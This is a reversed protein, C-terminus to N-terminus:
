AAKAKEMAGFAQELDAILDEPEELGIHLRLMVTDNPWQTVTRTAAPKYAIILSEYGGWSYGMGFHHLANMFAALKDRSIDKLVLAFLGSAGHMDRKWMAHGPDNSLAPYCVREVEKRGGLWQAVQMANTQHQAVRVGITRLGRLALYANDGSVSEGCNKYYRKLAAVQPKLVSLMGMVVDSHGCVYKTAAHMSIDIGLEFPKIYMPTAWTNDSAVLAGHAHAVKAIAPIDQMEFTLSGPSECFVLKTNKQMLAEIGAGINPDYYTIEVGFRSLEEDLFRRAPGYVSDTVLVHDGASTFSHFIAVIASLGSSFVFSEDAGELAALAECLSETTPTGERGYGPRTSKGAAHEEFEEYDSFLITSTRHVPPNVSGRDRKSNRGISTLLTNRKM